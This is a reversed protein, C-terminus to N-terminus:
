WRVEELKRLGYDEVPVADAPPGLGLAFLVVHLKSAWFFYGIWLLISIGWSTQPNVLRPMGPALKQARDVLPRTTTEYQALAAALDEPQQLIAGALNYAGTLALTTGMGSLPSACYRITQLDPFDCLPQRVSEGLM